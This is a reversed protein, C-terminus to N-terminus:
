AVLPMRHIGQRLFALFSTTLQSLGRLAAFLSHDPSIRIKCLSGSYLQSIRGQTFYPTLLSGPSTFWRLVRLFLFCVRNGWYRHAFLSSGLGPAHSLRCANHAPPLPDNGSPTAARDPLLFGLKYSLLGPFASRLLHCDQLRFSSPERPPAGLYWPVRPVRHSDPLVM